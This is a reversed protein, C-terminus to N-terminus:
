VPGVFGSLFSGVPAVLLPSLLTVAQPVMERLSQMFGHERLWAHPDVDDPGQAALTEEVRRRLAAMAPLYFAIIALAFVAGWYISVSLILRSTDAPTVADPVLSVPWRLWAIIQLVGALMQISVANVAYRLRLLRRELDVLSRQRPDAHVDLIACGAVMAAVVGVAGIANILFPLELGIMARSMGQTAYFTSLTEYSIWFLMGVVRSQLVRHQGEGGLLMDVAPGGWAALVGLAGVACLGLLVRRRASRWAMVAYLAVALVSLAIYLFATFVWATRSVSESVVTEAGAPGAARILGAFLGGIRYPDPAVMEFLLAGVALALLSPVVFRLSRATAYLTSVLDATGTRAGGPPPKGAAQDHRQTSM